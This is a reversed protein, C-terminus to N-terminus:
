EASNKQNTKSAIWQDILRRIMESINTGDSEHHESLAKHQNDTLYIQTRKMYM